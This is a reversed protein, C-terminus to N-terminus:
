PIEMNSAAVESVNNEFCKVIDVSDIRFRTFSRLHVMSIRNDKSINRLIDV